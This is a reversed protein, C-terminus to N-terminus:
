AHQAGLCVHVEDSVNQSSLSQHKRMEIWVFSYVLDYFAMRVFSFASM